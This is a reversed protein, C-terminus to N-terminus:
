FEKILLKPFNRIKKNWFHKLNELWELHVKSGKKGTELSSYISDLKVIIAKYNSTKEILLM